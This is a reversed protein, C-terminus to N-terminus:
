VVLGVILIPVIISKFGGWIKAFDSQREIYDPLDKGLIQYVRNLVERAEAKRRERMKHGVPYSEADKLLPAVVSLMQPVANAVECTYNVGGINISGSKNSGGMGDQCYSLNLSSISRSVEKFEKQLQVLTQNGSVTDGPAEGHHHHGESYSGTHVSDQGSVAAAGGSYAALTLIFGCIGIIGGARGRMM